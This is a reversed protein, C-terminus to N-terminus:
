GRLGMWALAAAVLGACTSAFLALVGLVVVLALVPNRKANATANNLTSTADNAAGAIMGPKQLRFGETTANNQRIGAAPLPVTQVPRHVPPLDSLIFRPGNAPGLTFADGVRLHETGDVKEPQGQGSVLFLWMEAGRDGAQLFARGDPMFTIQAHIPRVGAAGSLSIQCSRNDSGICVTGGPFPGFTQGGHEPSLALYRDPM